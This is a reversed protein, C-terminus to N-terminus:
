SFENWALVLELIFDRVQPLNVQCAVPSHNVGEFLWLSVLSFHLYDSDPEIHEVDYVVLSVVFDEAVLFLLIVVL